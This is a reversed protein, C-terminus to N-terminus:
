KSCQPCCSIPEGPTSSCAQVLGLVPGVGDVLGPGQDLKAAVAVGGAQVGAGGVLLVDLLEPSGHLGHADQDVAWGALPANRAATQAGPPPLLLQPLPACTLLHQRSMTLTTSGVQQQTKVDQSDRRRTHTHQQQLAMPSRYLKWRSGERVRPQPEQPLVLTLALTPGWCRILMLVPPHAYLPHPQCISRSHRASQCNVSAAPTDHQNATPLHVFMGASTHPSISM